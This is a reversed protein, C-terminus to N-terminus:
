GLTPDGGGFQTALARAFAIFADRTENGTAERAAQQAAISVANLVQYPTLQAMRDIQPEVLPKAEVEPLKDKSM